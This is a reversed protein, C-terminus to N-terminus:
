EEEGPRPVFRFSEGCHVCEDTGFEAVTRCNWCTPVLARSETGEREQWVVPNACGSTLLGVFLVVKSISRRM